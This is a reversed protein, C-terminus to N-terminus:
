GAHPNSAWRPFASLCVYQYVVSLGMRIYLLSGCIGWTRMRRRTAVRLCAHLYVHIQSFVLLM